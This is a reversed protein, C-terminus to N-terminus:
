SLCVVDIVEPFSKFSQLAWEGVALSKLHVFSSLLGRFEAQIREFDEVDGGDSILKCALKAYVLSSLDLLRCNRPARGSIELTEDEEPGHQWDAVEPDDEGDAEDVEPGDAEDVQPDDEGNAEDVQPNDEDDAEDVEPDDEGYAEDEEYMRGVFKRLILKKLSANNINLRSFGGYRYLELMELAPCGSLIKQVLDDSLKVNGISLKGLSRGGIDGKPSVRCRVFRLERFSSNTYLHQPLEYRDKKDLPYEGDHFEFHVEETGKGAAFQSWSDVNSAFPPKYGFSVVLKKVQYSRRRLVPSNKNKQSEDDTEAVVTEAPETGAVASTSIAAELQAQTIIPKKGRRPNVAGKKMWWIRVKSDLRMAGNVAAGTVAGDSEGKGGNDMRLM